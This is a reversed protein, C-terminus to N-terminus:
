QKKVIIRLTTYAGSVEGLYVPDFSPLKYLGVNSPNDAGTAFLTQSPNIAISHIGGFGLSQAFLSNEFVHGTHSKIVPLRCQQGTHVDLVILQVAPFVSIDNTQVM